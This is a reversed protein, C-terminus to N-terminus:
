FNFYPLVSQGREIFAVGLFLTFGAFVLGIPSPSWSWRIPPRGVERWERWNLAPDYRGMIQQSNPMLFVLGSAVVLLTVLGGNFWQELPLQGREFGTMSRWIRAADGPTAARFMVNAYVVALLTIRHYTAAQWPKPSPLPLGARKLERRHSKQYVRWAENM